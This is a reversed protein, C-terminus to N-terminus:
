SLSAWDAPRSAGGVKEDSGAQERLVTTQALPRRVAAPSVGAKLAAMVGVAELYNEVIFLKGPMHPLAELDNKMLNRNERVAIVPIGQKFAALTPLGVCGDPIVLCSVDAATLVGPQGFAAPARIIRPSRHLGKLVSHLFTMSIADAAKRPDVVGVHMNLLELSEIMPAHASPVDFILSVAHTLMAEVGGWPNIVEGYSPLYDRYWHEPLQIVTSLAVADFAPRHRALVECLREIGEIRGAARGSPAYRSLTYIPSAMRIVFPCEIGLTARAASAANVALDSIERDKHEDIVLLVRNSRVKQLGVKGMLLRSIVSGEVYLGNEPLENIDAGNVVNPHTILTDCASALLRAVPGADGCHGGVQAGIGTPVLLVANFAGTNEAARQAFAFISAPRVASAPLTASVEDAAALVGLECRLTRGDSQTVVFRIPVEGPGLSGLVAQECLSLLDDTDKTAVDIERESLFM